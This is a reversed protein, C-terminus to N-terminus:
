HDTLYLRTQIDLSAATTGAGVDGVAYLLLSGEVMNTVLGTTDAATFLTVKNKLKVFEDIYYISKATLQAITLNGVVEFNWRRLIKFRSANDKNTLSMSNVSTLVTNFAPIAAGANPNRDWVLILGAVTQTGTIGPYVKARISIATNQLRRGLRTVSSNGLPVQNLCWASTAAVPAFPTGAVTGATSFCNAIQVIAATSDFTQNESLGRANRPASPVNIRPGGRPVNVLMVEGSKRPKKPLNKSSVASGGKRSRKGTGQM